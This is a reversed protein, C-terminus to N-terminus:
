RRGRGSSSSMIENFKEEILKQPKYEVGQRSLSNVFARLHNYSGSILSEYVVRVDDSTVNNDLENQIDIIDIEEILAGISLAESLSSKGQETLTNFLEQLDVNKFEGFIDTEMPDDINYLDLLTKIADTHRQESNSINNFINQEWVDYLSKYVDRALKEEERMFILGEIENETPESDGSIEQKLLLSSSNASLNPETSSSCGSLSWVSILLLVTIVATFYKSSKM